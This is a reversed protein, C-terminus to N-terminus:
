RKELQIDKALVIFQCVLYCISCLVVLISLCEALLLLWKVELCYYALYDVILFLSSLVIFLICARFLPRMKEIFNKEAIITRDLDFDQAGRKKEEAHGRLSERKSLIFSYVVTGVTILIGIISLLVSIIDKLLTQIISCDPM